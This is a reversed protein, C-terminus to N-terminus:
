LQDMITEMGYVSALTSRASNIDNLTVLYLDTGLADLVSQYQARSIKPTPNYRLAGLYAVAESVEHNRLADDALHSKAENLEHIVTAAIVREWNDRIIPIQAAKTTHDNHNIAARGTIFAKMLPASTRLLADREACAKAWFRADPNSPFDVPAGFYGFAEDWHHQLETGEGPTVTENDVASGTQEDSLYVAVSQYFFVAGMLGKEVMEICDYGSASLLFHELGDTSTARGAVGHSAAASSASILAVSDMWAELEPQAALFCKDKLQKTSTFSFPNNQNEFMERLRQASLTAGSTIATEMYATMEEVMDMRTTQGAYNVHDFTYTEPIDYKLDDKRCGGLAMGLLLILLWATYRMKKLSYTNLGDKNLVM